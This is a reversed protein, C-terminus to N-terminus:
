GFEVNGDEDIRALKWEYQKEDIANKIQERHKNLTKNMTKESLMMINTVKLNQTMGKFVVFDIPNLIPKVDLPDLRLARIEKSLVKKVIKMAEIRGKETAEARMEKKKEDFREEKREVTRIKGEYEDLWTTPAPGKARLKLESVRVLDGCCPCVCLIKRFERFEKFHEAM